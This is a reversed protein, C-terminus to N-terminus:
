SHNVTSGTCHLSLRYRVHSAYPQKVDSILKLQGLLEKVIGKVRTAMHDGRKGHLPPPFLTYAELTKWVLPLFATRFSRCVQCLVRLADRRKNRQGQLPSTQYWPITTEQIHSVVLHLLETPFAAFGQLNRIIASEHRTRPAM